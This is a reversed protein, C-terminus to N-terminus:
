HYSFRVFITTYQYRANFIEGSEGIFPKFYATSALFNTMQGFFRELYAAQAQEMLVRGARKEGWPSSFIALAEVM